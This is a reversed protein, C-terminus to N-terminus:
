QTENYYDIEGFQEKAVRRRTAIRPDGPKFEQRRLLEEPEDPEDLPPIETADENVYIEPDYSLFCLRGVNKCSKDIKVGAIELVHKRLAYFSALHKEADAPVRFFGKVGDQTPSDFLAYLFMSQRLKEKVEALKERGQGDVDVCLIGSHQTLADDDRREFTGSPMVAPLSLKIENIAKKAAKRDGNTIEMVQWFKQRIREVKARVEGRGDRLQEIIEDVECDIIRPQKATASSVLSMGFTKPEEQADATPAAKSLTSPESM